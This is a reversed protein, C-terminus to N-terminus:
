IANPMAGAFLTKRPNFKMARGDFDGLWTNGWWVQYVDEAIPLFGIGERSLVTSIFVHENKWGFEGHNEVRRVVFDPGYELAGL